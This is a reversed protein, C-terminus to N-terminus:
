TSLRFEGASGSETYRGLVCTRPLLGRLQGICAPSTCQRRRPSDEDLLPRAFRKATRANGETRVLDLQRAGGRHLVDFPLFRFADNTQPQTLGEVFLHDRRDFFGPREARGDSYSLELSAPRAKFGKLGPSGIVGPQTVANLFRPAEHRLIAFALSQVAVAIRSALDVSPCGDWYDLPADWFELLPSYYTPDSRGSRNRTGM